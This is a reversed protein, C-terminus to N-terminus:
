KIYYKDMDTVDQETIIRPIYYEGKYLYTVDGYSTCWGHGEGFNKSEEMCEILAFVIRRFMSPHVLPFATQKVNLRQSADKIKVKIDVHKYDRGGGSVFSVYVNCRTGNREIEEVARLVKLGQQLMVDTDIMASYGIDKTVNVVKNKQVVRRQNIMNTPIGQLYRPVSCQFGAVDYASRIVTSSSHVHAMLGKNLSEAGSEWGHLLLEMAENFDRTSTFKTRMSSVEDSAHHSKYHKTYDTHKIFSVVDSISEFLVTVSNSEKHFTKRM